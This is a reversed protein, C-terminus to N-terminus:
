FLASKLRSRTQLVSLLVTKQTAFMKLFDLEGDHAGSITFIQPIKNLHSIAQEYGSRRKKAFTELHDLVSTISINM